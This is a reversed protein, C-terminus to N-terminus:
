QGAIKGDLDWLDEWGKSNEWLFVHAKIFRNAKDNEKMAKMEEDSLPLHDPIGCKLNMLINAEKVSFPIPCHGRQCAWKLCVVAPHVGLREAIKVVLPDEIPVTDTPAVDRAPRKPSGVPSYGVCAIDNKELYEFLEPQQLHPHMEIQNCAPRIKADKLLSEIKPITMNSVGISRVLGDAVLQEMQRWTVMYNEHIFPKGDAKNFPAHNPFPWHVLYM